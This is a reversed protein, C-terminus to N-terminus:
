IERAGLRKTCEYCGAKSASIDGDMGTESLEPTMTRAVIKPIFCGRNDICAKRIDSCVHSNGTEARPLM